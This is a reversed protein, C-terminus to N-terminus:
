KKKTKPFKTKAETDVPVLMGADVHAQISDGFTSVTKDSFELIETQKVPRVQGIATKQGEEPYESFRLNGTFRSRFKM